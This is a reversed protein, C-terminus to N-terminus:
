VSDDGDQKIESSYLEKSNTITFNYMGLAYIIASIIFIGLVLGFGRQSDAISTYRDSIANDYEDGGYDPDFFFIQEYLNFTQIIVFKHTKQEVGHVTDNTGFMDGDATLYTPVLFQYNKIGAVGEELVIDHLEDYNMESILRHNRDENKDLYNYPEVAIMDTSQSEIKDIADQLLKRNYTSTLYDSLHRETESTRTPEKGPERSSPDIFLDEVIRDYGELVIVANKHNNIGNLYQDDINERIIDFLENYVEEDGNDLATKLEQMDFRANVDVEISKAFEDAQMKATQELGHLYTYLTQFEEERHQELAKQTSNVITTTTSNYVVVVILSLAIILATYFICVGLRKQRQKM